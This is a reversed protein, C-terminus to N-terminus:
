VMSARAMPKSAARRSLTVSARPWRNTESKASLACTTWTSSIATLASVPSGMMFVALVPTACDMPLVAM